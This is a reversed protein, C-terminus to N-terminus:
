SKGQHSKEKYKGHKLNKFLRSDTAKRFRKAMDMNCM